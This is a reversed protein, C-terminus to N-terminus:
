GGMMESIGWLLHKWPAPVCLGWMVCINGLNMAVLSHLYLGWGGWVSGLSLLEGVGRM